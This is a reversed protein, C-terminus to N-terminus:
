PRNGQHLDVIAKIRQNSDEIMGSPKVLPPIKSALGVKDIHNLGNPLM